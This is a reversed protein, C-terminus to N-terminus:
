SRGAYRPDRVEGTEISLVKPVDQAALNTEFIKAKPHCYKMVRRKPSYKLRVVTVRLGRAKAFVLECWM